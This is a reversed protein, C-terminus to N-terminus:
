EAFLRDEHGEAWPAIFTEPRHELQYSRKGSIALLLQAFHEGNTEIDVSGDPNYSPWNLFLYDAVGGLRETELLAKMYRWHEEVNDPVIDRKNIMRKKMEEVPLCPLVTVCVIPVGVAECFERMKPYGIIDGRWIIEDQPAENLLKLMERIETGYDDKDQTIAEVMADAQCLKKIRGKKRFHYANGSEHRQKTDPLRDTSTRVSVVDDRYRTTVHDRLSDKGSTSPGLLAFVIKGEHRIIGNTGYVLCNDKFTQHFKEYGPFHAVEALIEPTLRLNNDKLVEWAARDIQPVITNTDILVSKWGKPKEYIKRGGKEKRGLRLSENKQM